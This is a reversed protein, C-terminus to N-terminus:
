FGYLPVITEYNTVLFNDEYFSNLSTFYKAYKTHENRM